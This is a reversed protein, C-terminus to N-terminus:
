QGTQADQIAKGVAESLIRAAGGQRIQDYPDSLYRTGNIYVSTARAFVREPKVGYVKKGSRTTYISPQKGIPIAMISAPTFFHSNPLFGFQTPRSIFERATVGSVNAKTRLNPHVPFALKKARKARVVGGIDQIRAYALPKGGTATGIGVEVKFANGGPATTVKGKISRALTRTKRPANKKADRVIYASSLQAGRRLGKKAARKFTSLQRMINAVDIEVEASM